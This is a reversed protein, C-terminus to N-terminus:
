KPEVCCSGPGGDLQCGVQTLMLPAKCASTTTCYGSVCGAKPLCCYGVDGDGTTCEWIPMEYAGPDGCSSMVAPRCFGDGCAQAGAESAADTGADPQGCRDVSSYGVGKLCVQGAPCTQEPGVPDCTGGSCPGPGCAWHCDHNQLPKYHVEDICRM